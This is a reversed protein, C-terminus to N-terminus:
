CLSVKLVPAAHCPLAELAVLLSLLLLLMIPAHVLTDTGCRKYCCRKETVASM